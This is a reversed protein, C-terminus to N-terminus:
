IEVIFISGQPQNDAIALTGGQAEIAMKCFALGLGTQSINKQFEGIEFKEFIEDARETNVGLGQDAVTVRIHGQLLYEMGLIVQRHSPSFKLANSLLNEIIRSLIIPDILISNGPSPLQGKLEIHQANAMIEFDDLISTGLEYLDTYVPNFIIKGSELKAMLLLSDIMTKMRKGSGLIQQAKKLMMRQQDPRDGYKQIMEASLLIASLPNRLDHILMNSMDERLTLTEERLKVLKALEENANKM